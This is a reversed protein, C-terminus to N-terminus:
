PAKYYDREEEVSQFRTRSRGQIPSNHPSTTRGRQDVLTQNEEYKKVCNKLQTSSRLGLQASLTRYGCKGNLYMEVAKLKFEETYNQFVQRKIAMSFDGGLLLTVGM